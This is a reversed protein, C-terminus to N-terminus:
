RGVRGSRSHSRKRRTRSCKHRRGSLSASDASSKARQAKLTRQNACGKTTLATDPTSPLAIQWVVVAAIILSSFSLALILQLRQSM